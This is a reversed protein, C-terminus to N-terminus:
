SAGKAQFRALVQARANQPTVPSRRSTEAQNSYRVARRAASDIQAWANEWEQRVTRLESALTRLRSSLSSYRANAVLAGAATGALAGLLLALSIATLTVRGRLRARGLTGTLAASSSLAESQYVFFWVM